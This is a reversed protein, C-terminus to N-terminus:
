SAPWRASLRTPPTRRSYSSSSPSHGPFSRRCSRGPGAARLSSSPHGKGPDTSPTVAELAVFVVAPNTAACSRDRKKIASRRRTTHYKTTNSPVPMKALLNHVTKMLLFEKCFIFLGSDAQVAPPGLPGKSLNNPPAASVGHANLLLSRAASRRFASFTLCAKFRLPNRRHFHTSRTKRQSRKM